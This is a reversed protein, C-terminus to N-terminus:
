FKGKVICQFAPNTSLYQPFKTKDHFIKTVGCITISLKEPYLVRSQCKHERVTQMVYTWSKRPKMNQRSFDPTIEISRGKYTVQGEETVV